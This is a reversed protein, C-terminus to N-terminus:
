GIVGALSMRWLRESIFRKPTRVTWASSSIAAMPMAIPAEKPPAMPTVAVLPGPMQRFDSAMPRATMVSIGTMMM